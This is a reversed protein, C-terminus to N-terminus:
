KGEIERQQAQLLEGAQRAFKEAREKGYANGSASGYMSKAAWKFGGSRGSGYYQVFGEDPVQVVSLHVYNRGDVLM